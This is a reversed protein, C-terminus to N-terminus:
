STAPRRATVLILQVLIFWAWLQESVAYPFAIDARRLLPGFHSFVTLLQAATTWIPWYRDSKLMIAAFIVLMTFDVMFIGPESDQWIEEAGAATFVTLISGAVVVAAVIKASREGCVFAYGCAAAMFFAFAIAIM